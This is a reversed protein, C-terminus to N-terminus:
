KGTKTVSCTFDSQSSLSTSMIQPILFFIATQILGIKPGRVTQTNSQAIRHTLVQQPCYVLTWLDGCVKTVAYLVTCLICPTWLIWVYTKNSRVVCYVTILTDLFDGYVKKYLTLDM